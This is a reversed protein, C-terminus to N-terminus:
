AVKGPPFYLYVSLRVRGRKPVTAHKETIRGLEARSPGAARHGSPTISPSAFLFIGRVSPEPFFPHLASAIVASCASYM